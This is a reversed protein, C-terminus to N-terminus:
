KRNKNLLFRVLASRKVHAQVKEADTKYKNSEAEAQVLKNILYNLKDDDKIKSLNENIKSKIDESSM